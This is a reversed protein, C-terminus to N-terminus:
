ITGGKVFNSGKRKREMEIYPHLLRGLAALEGSFVVNPTNEIRERQSYIRVEPAASQAAGANARTAAAASLRSTELEVAARAQKMALPLAKQFGVGIGEGMPKGVLDRTKKSPSHVDAAAKMAHIAKQIIAEAAQMLPGSQSQMGDIMGQVADQGVGSMTEPVSSLQEGLKGAFSEDLASLQDAYFADAVQRSEQQIQEWTGMYEQLQQEGLGDLTEAFKLGEEVGLSTIESLFDASAGRAKLNELAEQYRQIAELNQNLNELALKGTKSDITFLDGYGALKGAMTEADKQIGDRAKEYESQLKELSTISAKLAEQQAQEQAKLQKEEWDADLKAIEALLKERDELYDAELKARESQKAKALKEQHERERKELTKYKERISREHDSLEKAAQRQQAAEQIRFIEKNLAETGAKAEFLLSNCVEEQADLVQQKGQLIGAALGKALMVGVADRMVRSPSAIGAAKKAAGIAQSVLGSLASSANAGMNQIGQILGSVLQGGVTTFNSRFSDLVRELAQGIGKIISEAQPKAGEAGEALKTTLDAGGKGFQPLTVNLRDLTQSALQDVATMVVDSAQGIGQAFGTTYDRGREATKKSPSNADLAAALADLSKQAMQGVESTPDTDVIKQLFGQMYAAGYQSTDGELAANCIETVKEVSAGAADAAGTIGQVFSEITEKGSGQFSVGASALEAMGTDIMAQIEQPFQYAGTAVGDVMGDSIAVGGNIAETVQQDLIAKLNELTKTASERQGDSMIDWAASTEMAMRNYNIQMDAVAQSLEAQNAGTNAVIDASVRALIADVEEMSEAITLANFNDITQQQSAIAARAQDVAATQEEYERTLQNVETAWHDASNSNRAQLQKEKAEKLEQYKAGQVTLADTLIQQAEAEGTIAAQYEEKMAEMAMEKELAILKEDIADVINYYSGAEDQNIQIAGPILSNAQEALYAARREYGANVKGNGDTIRELEAVYSEAAGVEALVGSVNDARANALSEQAEAQEKLADKVDRIRAYLKESESAADSTALQYAGIAAVAVGVGVAALVFPNAAMVAHLAGQAATLLSIKGTLVGVIMEQAKLSGNMALLTLRNAAAHTQIVKSAAQFSTMVTNAWSGIKFAAFAAVATQVAVAIKDVNKILTAVASIAKPVANTAFKALGSVADGLGQALTRMASKMQGSNLSHQLQQIAGTASQVGTKLPGELSEYISIGLGEIGSKAITVAGQLNDNMIAAMEEAAGNSNRIASTLKQFDGDSANVIALLGSMGEQGAIGAAYEAKQAETLGAFKERLDQLLDSMPKVNGSADTLSLGLKAMYGAVQESPKALNTLMARLATGAQSGKIGANAMLGIAVATDEVAYGLAGAVPAVYKFTEGMLGVNTNSNSSAAALVDAFRGSEDARMGFATLADTVIDSTSALDEGSAAALNMIGELGGLMDETKWGAMAMYSLADASETASFKTKAGMEKAKDTLAQIEEGTAGSIAAVNSMAAEFDGGVKVAYGALAGLSASVAGIAAGVAKMGTKAVGGLKGITSQFQSDDGEILIVVSGDAM